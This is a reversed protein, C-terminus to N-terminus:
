EEKLDTQTLQESSGTGDDTQGPDGEDPKTDKEKTKNKKEAPIIRGVLSVLSLAIYFLLGLGALRSSFSTNMHYGFLIFSLIDPIVSFSAAAVAAAGFGIQAAPRGYGLKQRCELMLYPVSAVMMVQESIKAPNNMTQGIDFYLRLMNFICFAVTCLCLLTYVILSQKIVKRTMLVYAFFVASLLMFVETLILFASKSSEIKPEFFFVASGAICMIFATLAAIASIGNGTDDGFSIKRAFFLGSLLGAVVACNAAISLVSDLIGEGDYYGTSINYHSGILVTRGAAFGASVAFVAILIIIATKRYKNQLNSNDMIIIEM